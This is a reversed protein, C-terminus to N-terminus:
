FFYSRKTQNQRVTMEEMLQYTSKISDILIETLREKEADESVYEGLLPGHEPECVLFDIEFEVIGLEEKLRASMNKNLNM